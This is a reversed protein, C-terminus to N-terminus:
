GLLIDEKKLFEPKGSNGVQILFEKETESIINVIQGKKFNLNEDTNVIGQRYTQKKHYM